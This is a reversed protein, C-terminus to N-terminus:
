PIVVDGDRHTKALEQREAGAVVQAEGAVPGLAVVGVEEEIGDPGLREGAGHVTGSSCPRPVAALVPSGEHDGAVRAVLGDVGELLREAVRDERHHLAIPVEDERDLVLLHLVLREFHGEPQQLVGPPPQVPAEGGADVDGLGLGPTAAWCSPM